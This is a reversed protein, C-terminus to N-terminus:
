NLRRLILEYNIPDLKLELEDTKLSIIKYNNNIVLSHTPNQVFLSNHKKNFIHKGDLYFDCYFKIIKYKIKYMNGNLEIKAFYKIKLKVYHKNGNKDIYDKFLSDEIKIVSGSIFENYLTKAQINPSWTIIINIKEKIVDIHELKIKIMNIKNGYIYVKKKFNTYKPESFKPSPHYIYYNDKKIELDHFGKSINTIKYYGYSIKVPIIEINDIYIKINDQNISIILDGINKNAAHVVLRTYIFIILYITVLYKIKM